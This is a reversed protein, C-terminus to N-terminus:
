FVGTLSVGVGIRQIKRNYDVLSEGYGTYYQAYLSLYRSVQYAYSLEAGGKKSIPNFHGQLKAHHNTHHYSLVTDFYSRYRAIDRNEDKRDPIRWWPKLSFTWNGNSASFRAYLRNWHRTTPDAGKGNSEHVFGTEVENLQWGYALPRAVQWGIFARPKYNTERFPSSQKLNALQFWARQTYALALVSNEGLPAQWVPLALSFQFKVENSQMNQTETFRKNSYTQIFYSPEYASFGIFHEPLPQLLRSVRGITDPTSHAFLLPSAFCGLLASFKLIRM